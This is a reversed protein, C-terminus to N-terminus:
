RSVSGTAVAGALFFFLLAGCLLWITRRQLSRFEADRSATSFLISFMSFFPDSRDVDKSDAMRNLANLSRIGAALLAVAPISMLLYSMTSRARETLTSATSENQSFIVHRGFM